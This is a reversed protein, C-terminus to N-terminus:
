KRDVVEAAAKNKVIKDEPLVGRWNINPYVLSRRGIITGPNLVANCGINVHDGLLAGFKHLGTDYRIGEHEIIVNGPVVKVNSCIVGAGTHAKYGLISDGIYNFHPVECEEFLICNKLECSNGVVCNAGIIVNHRIYAGHRLQCGPGVIAPGKILVGEEIDVSSHIFVFSGKDEYMPSRPSIGHSTMNHWMDWQKSSFAYIYERIGKLADWAYECGKFIEEHETKTLDFLDEPKFM